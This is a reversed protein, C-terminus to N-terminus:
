SRLEERIAGGCVIATAVSVATLWYNHHQATRYIMVLGWVLIFSLCAIMANRM